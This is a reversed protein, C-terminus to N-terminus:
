GHFEYRMVGAQHGLFPALKGGLASEVHDRMLALDAGCHRPQLIAADMHRQKDIRHWRLDIAGPRDPRVGDFDVGASVAIMGAHPASPLESLDAVGGLQRLAETEFHMASM